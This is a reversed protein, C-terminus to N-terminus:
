AGAALHVRREGPAQHGPSRKSRVIFVDGTFPDCSLAQMVLAALSDM